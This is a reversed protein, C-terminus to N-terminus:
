RVGIKFRFKPWSEMDKQFQLRHDLARKFWANEAAQAAAWANAAENATRRVRRRSLVLENGAKDFEKLAEIDKYAYRAWSDLVGLKGALKLLERDGESIRNLRGHQLRM